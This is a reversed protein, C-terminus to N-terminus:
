DESGKRAWLLGGLLAGMGLGALAALLMDQRRAQEVARAYPIRSFTVMSYLPIFSTPFLRHLVKEAQKKLLFAPSVVRDRMEVFNRLSLDALADTNERRLGEYQALVTEWDPAYREICGDLVECDEFAANMGQGYFPVVAHCADGLLAVRDESHWPRCKVYVLPSTPNLRFDELLTPMEPVADAFHARFFSTVDADTKLAAFSFPGEFPLFLTCTFSGDLNPLAILMFDHRPWIHLANVFLRHGGDPLAPMTLEKYGWELYRQHYDFREHKMMAGRVASFAGDAAIVRHYEVPSADEFLLRRGEFDVGVCRQGFRMRVSGFREAADMLLCNLAHRSVSNIHEDPHISYPQLTQTGDLAHIMRGQMPIAIRLVDDRLGVGELAHLGRTSMALNISRGRPVEHRRMDPRREFVDVGYGRRALYVSMLAGALGAGVVTIRESM